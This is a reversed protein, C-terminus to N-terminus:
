MMYGLVLVLLVGYVKQNKEAHAFLRDFRAVPAHLAIYPTHSDFPRCSPLPTFRLDEKRVGGPKRVIKKNKAKGKYAKVRKPKQKMATIDILQLWKCMGLVLLVEEVELERVARHLFVSNTPLHLLAFAYRQCAEENKVKRTYKTEMEVVNEVYDTLASTSSKRIFYKLLRVISHEDIDILDLIAVELLAFQNHKMLTPLLTPEGRASLRRTRLMMELPGWLGLETSNLCRLTVAQLLRYSIVEGSENDAKRKNRKTELANELRSTIASATPTVLPDLLDAILQRERDDDSCMNAKWTEADLTDNNLSSTATVREWHTSSDPLARANSYDASSSSVTPGLVSALTSNKNKVPIIFAGREYDALVADGTGASVLQVPKGIDDKSSRGVVVEGESDKDADLSIKTSSVPVAFKSDWGTFKQSNDLPLSILYTFNGVGSVLYGNTATNAAQLKRKKHVPITSDAEVSTLNPMQQSAVLTLANTLADRSFRLTQWSGSCGVFSYSSTEAHYACASLM